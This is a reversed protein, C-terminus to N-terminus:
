TAGARSSERGTAQGRAWAGEQVGMGRVGMGQVKSIDSHTDGEPVKISM